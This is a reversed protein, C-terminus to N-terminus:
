KKALIKNKFYKELIKNESEYKNNIIFINNFYKKIKKINNNIIFNNKKFKPNKIYREILFLNFIYNHNKYEKNILILLLIFILIININRYNLILLITLTLYSIYITIKHSIKFPLLKNILLNLLKSGDLPVIPLLNFLLINLNYNIFIKYFYTYNDVLLTVLLYLIFQFLIGGLFLMFEQIFKSNIDYEFITYGGFPYINIRNINYNFILAM